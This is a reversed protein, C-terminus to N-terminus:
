YTTVVELSNSWTIMMGRNNSVLMLRTTRDPTRSNGSMNNWTTHSQQFGGERGEKRGEEKRGGEERRGEEREGVPMPVVSIHPTWRQDLGKLYMSLGIRYMHM